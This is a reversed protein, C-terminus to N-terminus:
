DCYVHILIQINNTVLTHVPSFPKDCIFTGRMQGVRFGDFYYAVQLNTNEISIVGFDANFGFYNLRFGKLAISWLDISDLNYTPHILPVGM